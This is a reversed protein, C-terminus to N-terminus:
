KTLYVQGIGGAIGQPAPIDSTAYDSNLQLTSGQDILIKRAVIATWDSTEGFGGAKRVTLTGNPLYVTGVLTRADKSSVIFERGMPAKRDEFFLIGAMPGTKPATLSITTSTGINTKSADGTFYFGVNTGNFITSGSINFEGDKIVYIGPKATVTGGTLKIGGCYVGPNIMGTVDTQFNTFDCSGVTPASRSLLPDPIPPCDTVPLPSIDVSSGKIGGSSCISAATMKSASQVIISGADTSNSFMSCNDGLLGSKGDMQLTGSASADLGLVCINTTSAIAARSQVAIQPNSKFMGLLFYGHGDQRISVDVTGNTENVGVSTTYVAASISSGMMTEDVFDAAVSEATVKNWGQLAAERVAALAAQDAAEQMQSKQSFFISFDVALGIVGILVPAIIATIIAFNGRKDELFRLPRTKM